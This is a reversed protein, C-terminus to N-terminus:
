RRTVSVLEAARGQITERDGAATLWSGVGVAVAGAALYDGANSGDIGGTPIIPIDALPGRLTALMSPGGVSAPFLKVASAGLNWATVIETATLGGAFVPIGRNRGYTIIEPDTHPCVLFSAGAGVARNAEALTMVTGAGVAFDRGAFAEISPVADAGDMTVEVVPLGVAELADGLVEGDAVSLGRAIPILRGTAVPEPVPARSIM